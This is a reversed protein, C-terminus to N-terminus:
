NTCPLDERIWKKLYQCNKQLDKTLDFRYLPMGLLRQSLKRVFETEQFRGLQKTTSYVVQGLAKYTRDPRIEPEINETIQPLIIAAIPLSSKIRSASVMFAGKEGQMPLIEFPKFMSLKELSDPTLSVNTYIPYVIPSGNASMLCYDDSVFDFGDALCTCTLTSKGTGGHGVILIGRGDIGVAASHLMLLNKKQAWLFVAKAFPHNAVPWKPHISPHSLLYYKSKKYNEARLNTGIIEIYGYFDYVKFFDFGFNETNVIHTYNELHSFNHPQYPFVRDEWWIFSADVMETGNDPSVFMDPVAYRAYEMNPFILRVTYGAIYALLCVREPLIEDLREDLSAFYDALTEIKAFNM